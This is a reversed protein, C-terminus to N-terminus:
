AVARSVPHWEWWQQPSEQARHRGRCAVPSSLSVATFSLLTAQGPSSRSSASPPALRSQFTEALKQSPM